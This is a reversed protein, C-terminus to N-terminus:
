DVTKIEFILELESQATLTMDSLRLFSVPLGSNKFRKTSAIKNLAIAALDRQHKHIFERWHPNTKVSRIGIFIRIIDFPNGTKVDHYCEFSPANIKTIVAYAKDNIEIGSVNQPLENWTQTAIPYHRARHILERCAPHLDKVGNCQYYEMIGPLLSASYRARIYDLPTIGLSVLANGMHLENIFDPEGANMDTCNKKSSAKIAARLRAEDVDIDEIRDPTRLLRAVTTNFNDVNISNAAKVRKNFQYKDDQSLQDIEMYDMVPLIGTDQTQGPILLRKEATIKDWLGEDNLYLIQYNEGKGAPHRFTMARNKLANADPIVRPQLGRTALNKAAQSKQFPTMPLVPIRYWNLVALINHVGTADKIYIKKFKEHAM